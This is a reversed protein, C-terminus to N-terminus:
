LYPRRARNVQQKRPRGALAENGVRWNRAFKWATDHQIAPWRQRCPSLCVKQGRKQVRTLKLSHAPAGLTYPAGNNSQLGFTPDM